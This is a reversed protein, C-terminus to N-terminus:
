LLILLRLHVMCIYPCLLHLKYVVGVSCRLRQAAWNIARYVDSTYTENLSTPDASCTHVDVQSLAVPCMYAAHIRYVAEPQYVSIVPTLSEDNLTLAANLEASASRRPQGQVSLM